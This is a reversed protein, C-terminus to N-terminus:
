KRLRLVRRLLNSRFAAFICHEAADKKCCRPQWRALSAAQATERLGPRRPRIRDLQVFIEYNQAFRFSKENTKRVSHYMNQLGRVSPLLFAMDLRDLRFRSSTRGASWRLGSGFTTRAPGANSCNSAFISADNSLRTSRHIPTVGGRAVRRKRRM